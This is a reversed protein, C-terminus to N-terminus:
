LPRGVPEVEFDPATAQRGAFGGDLEHWHSIADEGLRWCLFVLRSQYRSYFDVTGDEYSKLHCGIEDLERVYGDIRRAVQDIEIRLRQQEQSEGRDPHGALAGVEYEAVLERWRPHEDVVDRVVRTVLPLTRNADALTFVKVSM